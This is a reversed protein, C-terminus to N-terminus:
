CRTASVDLNRQAKYCSVASADDSFGYILQLSKLGWNGNPAGASSNTHQRRM